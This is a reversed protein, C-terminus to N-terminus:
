KMGLTVHLIDHERRTSVALGSKEFVKLMAANSALVEAIFTKIGSHRAIQTLHKMLLGGVGQGQYADPVAFAVEATGPETVVYRGGGVIVQNGNESLVAVLAVHNTFDVNMYYAIEQESMYHRPSFLRRYISEESMGHVARGMAERDEPRLARVQIPRGDRLAEAASYQSAELITDL